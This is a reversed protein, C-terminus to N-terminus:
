WSQLMVTDQDDVNEDVLQHVLLEIKWKVTCSEASEAGGNAIKVICM